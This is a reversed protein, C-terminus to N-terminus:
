LRVLGLAHLRQDHALEALGRALLPRRHFLFQGPIEGRQLQLQQAHVLGAQALGLPCAQLM